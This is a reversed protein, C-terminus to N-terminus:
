PGGGWSCTAKMRMEAGGPSRFVMETWGFSKGTVLVPSRAGARLVKWTCAQATDPAPDGQLKTEGAELEWAGAGAMRGGNADFAWIAIEITEDPHVLLADLYRRDELRDDFPEFIFGAPDAVTLEVTDLPTGADLLTVTTKGCGAARVVFRWLFGDDKKGPAVPDPSVELVAPDAAVAVLSREPSDARVELAVFGGRAVPVSPDFTDQWFGNSLRFELRDAPGPVFRDPFPSCGALALALVALTARM